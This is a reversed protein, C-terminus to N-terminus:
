AYKEELKKIRELLDKSGDLDHLAKPPHSDKKLEEIEAKLEKIAEVLLGVVNGYRVALFKNEPDNIDETEYVVEPLVKELEQAILGTSKSGDEKYNFTVGRLKLVKDLPNEITAINEKLRIDSTSGYATMNGVITGNGSQSIIFERNFSSDWVAFVNSSDAGIYGTGQSNSTRSFGIQASGGSQYFHSYGSGDRLVFKAGGDTAEFNSSASTQGVMFRGSSDLRARESPSSGGDATTFFGIRGPMDNSGPTGDVEAMIKAASSATDSGDSAYFTIEGLNDGDQVVTNSGVTGNRSKVFNLAPSNTNASFRGITFTSGSNDTGNIQLKGTTGTTVATSSNVLVQGSSTIRAAETASGSSAGFTIESARIDFPKFEHGWDVANIRSRSSAVDISTVHGQSTNANTSGSAAIAGSVEVKDYPSSTGIGLQGSTDIRMKESNNIDFIMPHNSSTAVHVDSNQAYVKFSANNTTDKLQLFPSSAHEIVLGSQNINVEGSAKIVFMDAVGAVRFRMTNDSHNYRITGADQSDTDGLAIICASTNGSNIAIGANSDSTAAILYTGSLTPPTGGDTVHFDTAPSITGIGVDGSTLSININNANAGANGGFSGVANDSSVYLSDNSDRVRIYGDTDTSYFDAIQDSSTEVHLKTGPSSTGIGVDGSSNIRMKESSNVGFILSSSQRTLLYGDADVQVLEMAGTTGDTDELRLTAAGARSIELGSGSTFTPSTTGVGLNGSSDLTIKDSYSSGSDTFQTIRFSDDSTVSYLGWGDSTDGEIIMIGTNGGAPSKVTLAANGSQSSKGVMFNGSSDIRVRESNNTFFHLYNSGNSGSVYNTTGGFYLKDTSGVRINGNVHLKESPSSQGIGVNNSDDVVIGVGTGGGGAIGIYDSAGARLQVGANGTSPSDALTFNLDRNGAKLHFLSSPTTGIGLKGDNMLRMRESKNTAFIMDSDEANYVLVDGTTDGAIGVYFKDTNHDNAFAMNAGVGSGSGHIDLLTNGGTFSSQGIAVAGSSAISGTVDIGSSTTELKKSGAHYLEVAANSKAVLANVGSSTTQLRLEGTVERIRANSGDHYIQLDNDSGLNIIGNDALKIDHNFKATGADSMDLELATITSTDDVGRFLMDKNNQTSEIFFHSSSNKFVGITTGGDNFWIDGGDADLIIDGAVDLTLDGSSLDIETGDITINDVVVGANATLVGSVGLTSSVTAAGTLALTSGNFTLNAEGNITDSGSATLIRNDSFNSISSIPTTNNEWTAASGSGNSTLVQGSSGYNAGSLGIQGAEGIRFREGPSNSSGNLLFFALAGSSTGGTTQDTRATTIGRIAAFDLKNQSSARDNGSFIIQGLKTNSASVPLDAFIELLPRYVSTSAPAEHLHLKAGQQGSPVPEGLYLAGGLSMDFTAATIESGGDQGKFIIDKDDESSTIVFDSSSNTFKGITTGGDKFVVDAGDADLIIDGAVDLTLDGRPVDIESNAAQIFQFSTTGGDKITVDAGDADLIIDAASDVTFDGSSTQIQSSTITGSSITGINLLNRSGDIIQTSSGHYLGGGSGIYYRTDGDVKFDIVTNDSEDNKDASIAINGATSAASIESDANTDTDTFTIKPATGSIDVSASTKVAGTVNIPHSFDFEDNTADWLITADTSSNVADQITIGAGNANSSTDGAAYNLTINKDKVNLNTTDITTTTGSVTLDGSITASGTLALTSGDFTLNSEGQIAHAGTVTTVQNNTSGSLVAKTDAYAKISQQSAVKSNSDSAMNDEDLFASGSLSGDLQPNTLVKNTLTQSGTLTAVTSDIAFTVTNTNASTDIGTGGALTLTESNLNIAISASGDTINLNTAGLSSIDQFTSGDWYQLTTTSTNYIIQGLNFNGIDREATTLQTINDPDFSGLNIELIRVLNNFLDPTVEGQALPLNTKLLKAM